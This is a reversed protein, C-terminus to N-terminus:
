FNLKKVKEWPYSANGFHGGTATQAYLPKQLGLEKVIAGPRLDWNKKVIETLDADTKGQQVSGYSDVFISLPEAVGIAYSLQVLCREALGAAILSKAIMRGTYAGSSPVLLM